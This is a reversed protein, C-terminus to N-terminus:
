LRVRQNNYGGYITNRRLAPLNAVSDCSGMRKLERSSQLFLSVVIVFLLTILLASFIFKPLIVIIAGVVVVVSYSSHFMMIIVPSTEQDIIEMDKSFRNMIRGVPTVDFFRLKARLIKAMLEEFIQRSANISGYFVVADRLFFSISYLIAIVLYIYLYFSNSHGANAEALVYERTSVIKEKTQHVTM